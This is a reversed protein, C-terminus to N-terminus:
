VGLPTMCHARDDSRVSLRAAAPGSRRGLKRMIMVGLPAKRDLVVKAQELLEAEFPELRAQAPAGDESLALIEAGGEMAEVEVLDRAVPFAVDRAQQLIFANNAMPTLDLGHDVVRTARALHDLLRARQRSKEPAVFGVFVRLRLG